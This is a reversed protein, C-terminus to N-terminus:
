KMLGAIAQTFATVDVAHTVLSAADNLGTVRQVIDIALNGCLAVVLNEAVGGMNNQINM